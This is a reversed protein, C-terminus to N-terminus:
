SVLRGDYFLDGTALYRLLDILHCRAEVGEQRLEKTENYTRTMRYRHRSLELQLEVCSAGIHLRPWIGKLDHLRLKLLQRVADEGSKHARMPDCCEIGYEWYRKAYSEILGAEDSARFGKGAQDMFRYIIREGGAQQRYVAHEADTEAERWELLNGELLAINQAYERITFTNDPDTDKVTKPVGYVVSPWVERYIYWDSWPDVLLWLAAHPTRPHPDIAMYRCGRKPISEDPLVHIAPDYEPYVLQGELAHHRMEMEQDWFGQSSYKRREAALREGSMAPDASYHLCIVPLGQSNRRLQLGPCPSKFTIASDAM